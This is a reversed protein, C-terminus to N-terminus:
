LHPLVGGPAVAAARSDPADRRGSPGAADEGMYVKQFFDVEYAEGDDQAEGRSFREYVLAKEALKVHSEALRDAPTQM